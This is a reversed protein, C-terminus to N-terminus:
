ETARTYTRARGHCWRSIWSSRGCLADPRVSPPHYSRRDQLAGAVRERDALHGEVRRRGALDADPHGRAPHAVRVQVNAITLPRPWSREHDAVLAGPDDRGQARVHVGLRGPQTGADGDRQAPDGRAPPAPETERPPR